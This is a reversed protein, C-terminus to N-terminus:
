FEELIAPFALLTKGQKEGAEKSTLLQINVKDKGAKVTQLLGPHFGSLSIIGSTQAEQVTDIKTQHFYVYPDLKADTTEELYVRAQLGRAAEDLQRYIEMIYGEEERGIEMRATYKYAKKGSVDSLIQKEWTLGMPRISEELQYSESSDETWLIFKVLAQESDLLGSNLLLPIERAHKAKTYSNMEIFIPSILLIILLLGSYLSIRLKKVKETERIGVMSEWKKPM